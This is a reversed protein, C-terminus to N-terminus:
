PPNGPASHARAGAHFKRDIELAAVEIVVPASVRASRATNAAHSSYKRSSQKRNLNLNTSEWGQILFRNLSPPGATLSLTGPNLGGTRRFSYKRLRCLGRGESSSSFGHQMGETRM